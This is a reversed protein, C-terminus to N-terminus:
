KTSESIAAGDITDLKPIVLKATFANSLEENFGSMERSGNPMHWVGETYVFQSIRYRGPAIKFVSPRNVESFPIIYKKGNEENEVNLTIHSLESRDLKIFRGFLYAQSADIPASDPFEETFTACSCFFVFTIYALWNLLIKNMLEGM